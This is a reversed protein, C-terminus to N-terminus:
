REGWLADDRITDAVALAAADLLREGKTASATRPKGLVGCPSLDTIHAYGYAGSPIVIGGISGEATRMAQQDVLEPALALLMSSEAEGAHNVNEQETWKRLEPGPMVPCIPLDATSSFSWRLSMGSHSTPRITNHEELWRETEERVQDLDMFIWVDLV